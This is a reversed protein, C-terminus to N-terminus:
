ESKLNIIKQNLYQQLEEPLLGQEMLEDRIDRYKEWPLEEYKRVFKIAMPDVFIVENTDIRRLYVVTKRVLLDQDNGRDYEVRDVEAWHLIEGQVDIMLPVKEPMDEQLPDRGDEPIFEQFIPRSKEDLAPITVVVLNSM